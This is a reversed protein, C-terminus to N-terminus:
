IINKNVCNKEFKTCFVSIIKERSFERNFELKLSTAIEQLDLPFNVGNVNVGIGILLYKISEGSTVIQTLIGGMKKENYIIDNPKKIELKYGYIEWITDVICKAIDLTLEELEKVKCKPYIVLSFSINKGKESYWKRDHTGIGNTQYDAIVITGNEVREEALRKIEKQTSEIEEFFIIKKGIINASLFYKIKEQM